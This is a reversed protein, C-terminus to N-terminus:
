RKATLSHTCMKNLIRKGPGLADLSEFHTDNSSEVEINRFHCSLTIATCSYYLLILYLLMLLFPSRGVQIIEM